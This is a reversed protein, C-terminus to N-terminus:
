GGRRDEPTRFRAVAEEGEQGEEEGEKGDTM